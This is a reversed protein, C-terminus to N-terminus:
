TEATVCAVIARAKVARPADALVEECVNQPEQTGGLMWLSEALGLKTEVRGADSRLAARHAEVAKPYFGAELLARAMSSENLPSPPPHGPYAAEWVRD